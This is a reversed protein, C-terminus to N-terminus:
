SKYGVTIKVPSEFSEFFTELLFKNEFCTTQLTLVNVDNKEAVTMKEM